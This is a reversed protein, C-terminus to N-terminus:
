PPGRDKIPHRDNDQEVPSVVGLEKGLEKWFGGVTRDESLRHPTMDGPAVTFHGLIEGATGIMVLIKGLREHQFDLPIVAPTRTHRYLREAADIAERELREREAKWRRGEEGENDRPIDGDDM